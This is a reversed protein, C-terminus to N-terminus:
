MVFSLCPPVMILVLTIVFLIGMPMLMKTGAEEGAERALRKRKEFAERTEQQLTILFGKSGKELQQIMITSFRKYESLAIREGLNKYAEHESIGSKMEHYTRCLEEYGYRARRGQKKTIDRREEQHAEYEDVLKGLANKSTMGAQIYLSFRSILEPYDRLLGTHREKKKREAEQQNGYFLTMGVVPIALLYYWPRKNEEGQFNIAYGEIAKPLRIQKEQQEQELIGQLSRDVARQWWVKDRADPMAVCVPFSYEQVYERLSLEATIMVVEGEQNKSSCFVEGESNILEEKDTSWQIDVPINEVRDCFNLDRSVKDLSENEGLVQKELVEQVQVFLEQAEQESYPREPITVKTSGKVAGNEAQFSLQYQTEEEEKELIGETVSDEEVSYTCLYIMLLVTLGLICYLLKQVEKYAEKRLGEEEQWIDASQKTAVLKQFYLSDCIFKKM